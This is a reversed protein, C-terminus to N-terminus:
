QEDLAIEEPNGASAAAAAGAGTGGALVAALAPDVAGEPEDGDEM